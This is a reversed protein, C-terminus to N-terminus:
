FIITAVVENSYRLIEDPPSYGITAVKYYVTIMDKKKLSNALNDSYSYKKVISSNIKQYQGNDIRRYVEYGAVDVPDLLEDWNLFVHKDSTTYFLTEPEPVYPSTVQIVFSRPSDAVNSFSFESSTQMDIVQGTGDVDLLVVEHGPIAEKIDPWSITHTGSVNSLVEMTWENYSSLKQIDERYAIYVQQWEPHPFYSHIYSSNLSSMIAPIDWALDLDNVAISKVGAKCYGYTGGGSVKLTIKWDQNAYAHSTIVIFLIVILNPWVRKLM